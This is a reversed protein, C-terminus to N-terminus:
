RRRTAASNMSSVSIRRKRDRGSGAIVDLLVIVKGILRLDGLIALFRVIAKSM